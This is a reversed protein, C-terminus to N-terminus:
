RKDQLSADSSQCRSAAPGLLTCYIPYFLFKKLEILRLDLSVQIYVRKLETIIAKGAPQVMTLVGM